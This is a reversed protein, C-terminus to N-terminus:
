RILQRQPVRCERDQMEFIKGQYDIMYLEKQHDEAFSIPIIHGKYALTIRQFKSDGNPVSAWIKGSGYDAFFYRGYWNRNKDGRYVYGGVAQVGHRNSYEFVPDAYLNIATCEIKSSIIRTGDQCDWGYFYKPKIFNIEGGIKDGSDSLWINGTLHDVSFRNPNKFGYAYVEPAGDSLELFPNNKTPLAKDNDSSVDLRLLTGLPTEPNTSDTPIISEENRGDGVSMLLNGSNDFAIYGSTHDSGSIAIRLLERKSSVALDYNNLIYKELVLIRSDESFITRTIYIYPSSPYQPSIAMGLLGGDGRKDLNASLDAILSSIGNKSNLLHIHGKKEWVLWNKKTPHWIMGMSEDFYKENIQRLDVCFGMGANATMSLTILFVYLITTGASKLITSKM